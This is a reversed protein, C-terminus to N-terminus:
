AIVVMYLILNTQAGTIAKITDFTDKHLTRGDNSHFNGFTDPHWINDQNDRTVGFADTRYTTGNSCRKTAFSDTYCTVTAYSVTSITLSFCSFFLTHSLLQM